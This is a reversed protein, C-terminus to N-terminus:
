LAAPLRHQQRCRHQALHLRPPRPPRPV